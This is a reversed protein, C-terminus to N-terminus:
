KTLVHLIVSMKSLALRHGVLPWTGDLCLEIRVPVRRDNAARRFLTWRRHQVHYAGTVSSAVQGFLPLPPTEQVFSMKCVLCVEQRARFNTIQSCGEQGTIEKYTRDQNWAVPEEEAGAIAQGRRFLDDWPGKSTHEM